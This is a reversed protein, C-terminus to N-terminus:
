QSCMKHAPAACSRDKYVEKYVVPCAQCLSYRSPRDFWVPIVASNGSQYQSLMNQSGFFYVSSSGNSAAYIKSRATVNVHSRGNTRVYASGVVLDRGYFQASNSTDVYLDEVNGAVGVTSKGSAYVSLSGTRVCYAFVCTNDKARIERINVNGNIGIKGSGETYIKACGGNAGIININNYGAHNINRLGINGSVNVGGNKTTTIDLSTTNAGFVSITGDGHQTVRRLNMNGALFIKGSGTSNIELGTSRVQRGEIRGSGMQTLHCLNAIGVRVIVNRLKNVGDGVAHIYLTDGQEDIAIQRVDAQSGYLYVNNNEDTNVIQVQFPGDVKIKNFELERVLKIRVPASGVKTVAPNGTLFWGSAGNVWSNPSTHVYAHWTENTQDTNLYPNSKFACAALLLSAFALLGKAILRKM